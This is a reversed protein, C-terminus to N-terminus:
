GFQIVATNKRRWGATKRTKAKGSSPKATKINAPKRTKQLTKKAPPYYPAASDQALPNVDPQATETALSDPIADDYNRTIKEMYGNMGFLSDPIANMQTINEPLIVAVRENREYIEMSLMVNKGGSFMMIPHMKYKKDPVSALSDAWWCFALLKNNEMIKYGHCRYGFFTKISDTPLFDDLQDEGNYLSHKRYEKDESSSLYVSDNLLNMIMWEEMGKAPIRAIIKIKNAGHIATLKDPLEVNDDKDFNKVSYTIIGTFKQQASLRFSTFLAFLLLLTFPFKM